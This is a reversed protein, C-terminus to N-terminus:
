VVEEVQILFEANGGQIFDPNEPQCSRKSGQDGETGRPIGSCSLADDQSPRDRRQRQRQHSEILQETEVLLGALQDAFVGACGEGTVPVGPRQHPERNGSQQAHVKQDLEAPNKAAARGPEDPQDHSAAKEEEARHEHLVELHVQLLLVAVGFRERDIVQQFLHALHEANCQGDPNEVAVCAFQQGSELCLPLSFDAVGKGAKKM